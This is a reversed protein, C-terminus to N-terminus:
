ADCGFHDGLKALSWGAQYLSTAEPLNEPDLGRGHPPIALRRIWGSATTRHIGYREALDNITAGNRYDQVLAVAEAPNLRRQHQRPSPEHPKAPEDRDQIIHLTQNQLRTLV